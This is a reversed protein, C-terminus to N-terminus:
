RPVPEPLVIYTLTVEEKVVFGHERAVQHAVDRREVKVLFQNLYHSREDEASLPLATLVCLLLSLVCLVM